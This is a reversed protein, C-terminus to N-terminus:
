DNPTIADKAKSPLDQGGQLFAGGADGPKGPGKSGDYTAFLLPDPAPM